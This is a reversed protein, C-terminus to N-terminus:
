EPQRAYFADGNRKRIQVVWFTTFEHWLDDDKFDWGHYLNFGNLVEYHYGELQGLKSFGLRQCGYDFGGYVQGLVCKRVDKMDLTELDIHKFWDPRHSDLLKAGAKVYKELNAIDM